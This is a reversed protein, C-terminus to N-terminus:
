SSTGVEKVQCNVITFEIRYHIRIIYLLREKEM